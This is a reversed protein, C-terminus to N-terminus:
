MCNAGFARANMDQSHEVILFTAVEHMGCFAAYHLPTARTKRPRESHLYRSQNDEPDYIWVWVSIHSKSPDFLRKIGDHVISAVNEVRAHDV